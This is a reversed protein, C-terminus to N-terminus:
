FLVPQMSLFNVFKRYVASNTSKLHKVFTKQEINATTSTHIPSSCMRVFVLLDEQTM